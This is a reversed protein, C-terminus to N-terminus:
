YSTREEIKSGKASQSVLFGNPIAQQVLPVHSIVGVARKQGALNQLTSLVRDLTGADNDADLSGFGEDIFITDLRINGRSSEVVDSLGLALALAAIFTEGGSLTSSPRSRGTHTDEICLGLGRRGGGKTELERALTYRGATMPRMRLNAADIVLDFMTGIAFVELEVKAGDRGAMYRALERIPATDREVQDLRALEKQLSSLLEELGNRRSRADAAKTQADGHATMATDLLEQLVPLDPPTLDRIAEQAKSLRGAALTKQEEFTRLRGEFDEIKPILAKYAPYDDSSIGATRLAEQFAARQSAESAEADKITKIAIEVAQRAAALRERKDVVDAQAANSNTEFTKLTATLSKIAADLVREDRLTEPIAALTSSLTTQAVILDGDAISAAKANGVLTAQAEVLAKEAKAKSTTIAAIDQATGLAALKTVEATLDKQIDIATRAPVALESVDEQRARVTENAAELTGLASNCRTQASDNNRQAAELEEILGKNAPAARAPAPHDLSGCVLCPEGPALNAALVTAHNQHLVREAQKLASKAADRAETANAADATKIQLDSQARALEAQKKEFHKAAQLEAKFGMIALALESRVKQQANAAELQQSLAKVEGNLRAVTVEAESKASKAIRAAETAKAVHTRQAEAEGLIGRYRQYDALTKAERDAKPKAEEIEAAFANAKTQAQEAAACQGLAQQHGTKAKSLEQVERALAADALAVTAAKKASVLQRKLLDAKEADAELRQVAALAEAQELFAKNTTEGARLNADASVMYQRATEVAETLMGLQMTAATIGETLEQHTTFGAQELRGKCVAREKEVLSTAEKDLEVMRETLRRYLSVDFLDRLISLREQTNASLFAEFRGQPLLVIQRFQEVKYGLLSRIRSDVTRVKGEAVVRGPNTDDLKELELGTVDFLSVKHEDKTTGSGRKVPRLQEPSRVIRYQRGGMDFIFEVQTPLASDAHDSRLSAASQESKAPEGFLAFTMGSFISSKGSGTSGYIGFLGIDLARRFDVVQKEAYPGFAQLVLYLPRM